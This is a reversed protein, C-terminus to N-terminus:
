KSPQCARVGVVPIITEWGKNSLVTLRGNEARQGDKLEEGREFALAVTNNTPSVYIQKTMFQGFIDGGANTQALTEQTDAIKVLATDSGAKTFFILTNPTAKTWLFLGCEGASLKQASLGATPPSLDPTSKMSIPATQSPSGACATVLFVSSILISLPKTIM